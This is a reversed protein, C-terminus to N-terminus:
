YSFRRSSSILSGGSFSRFFTLVFTHFSQLTFLCIIHVSQIDCVRRSPLSSASLREQRGAAGGYDVPLQRAGTCVWTVM